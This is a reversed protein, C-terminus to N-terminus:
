RRWSRSSAPPTSRPPPSCSRAWRIPSAACTTTTPQLRQDRLVAQAGPLLRQLPPRLFRPRHHRGAPLHDVRRHDRGEGGSGGRLRGPRVRGPGDPGPARGDGRRPPRLGGQPLGRGRRGHDRGGEGASGQRHVPLRPLLPAPRRLLRHRGRVHGGPRHRRYRAQGDDPGAQAQHGGRGGVLGAGPEQNGQLGADFLAAFGGLGTLVEESFTSRAKEKILDVARKGAEVDM